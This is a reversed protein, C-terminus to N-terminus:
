KSYSSRKKKRYGLKEIEGQYMRKKEENKMSIWEIGRSKKGVKERKEM